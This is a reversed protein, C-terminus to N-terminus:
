QNDLGGPHLLAAFVPHKFMRGLRVPLVWQPCIKGGVRLPCFRMVCINPRRGRFPTLGMMPPNGGRLPYRLIACSNTIWGVLIFYPRLYRIISCGAWGFRTLSMASPNEVWGFRCLRMVCINPIRGGSPPLGMMPPNGGRLPYRLMMCSSTIWGVRIFYPRLYRIISCGAWGFRPLGM